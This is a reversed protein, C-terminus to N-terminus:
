RARRPLFWDFVMLGMAIGALQMSVFQQITLEHFTIADVHWHASTAHYALVAAGVVAAAGIRTVLRTAVVSWALLVLGGGLMADNVLQAPTENLPPGTLGALRVAVHALVVGLAVGVIATLPTAVPLSTRLARWRWVVHVILALTVVQLMVALASSGASLREAFLAGSAALGILLGSGLVRGLEQRWSYLKRM